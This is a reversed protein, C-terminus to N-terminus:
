EADACADSEAKEKQIKDILKEAEAALKKQKEKEREWRDYEGLYDDLFDERAEM